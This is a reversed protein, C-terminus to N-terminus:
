SKVIRGNTRLYYQSKDSRNDVKFNSVINSLNETLRNLDDAARAIQQIGNASENTVQSMSEINKSIQEATSSQEESASAVQNALDVVENASSIIQKLSDGAKSALKKGEEVVVSGEAVSDVASKTDTQIKKIMQAIEKTAKTTREALKRVEDAVVAFGRGQEGARAAEIAANLALLNTQDAIEDIVQVIEGIQQSNKGLEQISEAAKGVVEAIKSIGDVTQLIVEGGKKAIEVASKSNEATRSTNKTTEIITSTMQEVATAIEHVQSSLEQSGSALEESSSSIQSAASSTTQTADVVERLIQSVSNVLRNISDKIKGHQGKYDTEVRITFDGTSIIELAKVGDQIPQIIADLTQNFGSIIEKYTGDFKKDDGRDDLKGEKASEILSNLEYTLQLIKGRSIEYADVGSQAKTLMSDFINALEGIEDKRELNLHKTVKEVKISLDGVSMATLGKGLGTLCNSDLSKMREKLLSVPVNINKTIAIGFVFVFVLSIAGVILMIIQSRDFTNKVNVGEQNVLETQYKIIETIANIYKKQAVSFDGFLIEIAADKNGAEFEDLVRKRSPFFEEHRVRSIEELLKKGRETKDREALKIIRDTVIEKTQEFINYTEEKIKPDDKLLMDRLAITNLKVAEIMDNAWVTKPFLDDTIINVNDNVTSLSNLGTFLVVVLLFVSIGFGLALKKSLKLNALFQNM